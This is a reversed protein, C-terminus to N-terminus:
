ISVKNLLKAISLISQVTNLERYDCCDLTSICDQKELLEIWDELITIFNSSTM